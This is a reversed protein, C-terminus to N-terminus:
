FGGDCERVWVVGLWEAIECFTLGTPGIAAFASLPASLTAAVLLSAIVKKM